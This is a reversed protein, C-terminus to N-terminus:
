TIVDLWHNYKPQWSTTFSRKVFCIRLWFVLNYLKCLTTIVNNYSEYADLFFKRTTKGCSIKLLRNCWKSPYSVEHYSHQIVKLKNYHGFCLTVHTAHPWWMPYWVWLLHFTFHKRKNIKYYIFKMICPSVAACLVM